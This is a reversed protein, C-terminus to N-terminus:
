TKAQPYGTAQYWKNYVNDKSLQIEKAAIHFIM